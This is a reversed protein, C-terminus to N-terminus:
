NQIRFISLIFDLSLINNVLSSGQVQLFQKYFVSYVFLSYLLKVIVHQQRSEFWIGILTTQINIYYIIIKNNCGVTRM